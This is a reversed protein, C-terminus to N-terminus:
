VVLEARRTEPLLRAYERKVVSYCECALAELRPRDLLIIRGRTHHIVGANELSGVAETIGERRVGLVNSIVEHTVALENSLLRDLGSLLWRCLREELSHHRNCVATQGIDVMLAQVYRLLLRALPSNQAIERTVLGGGIRYAFGASLAEAWFPTSVGGLFSAIGIVGECGTDAFETSTGNKMECYRTVLGAAIFHLHNEHRNACHLTWGAPLPVPELRPLLRV